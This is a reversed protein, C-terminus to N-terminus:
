AYLLTFGPKAFLEIMVFLLFLMSESGTGTRIIASSFFYTEPNSEPCSFM